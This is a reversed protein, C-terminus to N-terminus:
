QLSVLVLVLGRGVKLGTMAKGIIAGHARSYNTVKMAHGPTASTTLLDGPKIASRTADAYVWVRGSLAVPYKGDAISDKQGMVLGPSVGGAGSIIGAVSRDYAQRSVVLKGPNKQDISVVLGPAVEKAVAGPKTGNAESIDFNESFDAGGQIALVKVGVVGASDILLRAQGATRDYIGFLGATGFIGSELTWVRRQGALTSDLALIARENISRVTSEVFGSGEVHLKTQPDTTGIGVNGNPYIAMRIQNATEDWIYFQDGNFGRSTGIFYGRNPTRMFVRAWSNTGGATEAVFHTSVSDLSRVGGIVDLRFGPTTTGIGVNGNTTVSLLDGFSNNYLRAKGGAAYLAWDDAANTSNRDRFTLAADSGTLLIKGGHLHLQQEPLTTGIGVFGGTTITMRDAPSFPNGVTLGDNTFFQIAGFQHATLSAATDRAIWNTGDWKAGGAIIAQSPNTSVLYGGNDAATPGFRLQSIPHVVELKTVPSSTGIGVNGNTDTAVYRTAALGGLQQANVTQLAYPVSTIAQRPSLITHPNPSGAPRVGIELFSATGDFVNAGFDLTVTFIGNTVTVNSVTVTSGQQTGTGVTATDFLKFEMEYTGNAPNGSDTLTGQYTFATTQAAIPVACLGTIILTMFLQLKSQRAHRM